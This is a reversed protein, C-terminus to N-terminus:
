TNLFSWRGGYSRRPRRFIFVVTTQVTQCLREADKLDQVAYIRLAKLAVHKARYPGRWTDTFGGSAIAIDGFKEVGDSLIM